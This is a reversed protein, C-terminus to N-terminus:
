TETQQNQQLELRLRVRLRRFSEPTLMDPLLLLQRPRGTFYLIVLWPMVFARPALLTQLQEGSAVQLVCDRGAEWRLGRVAQPHRRSILRRWYWALSFLVMGGLALRLLLPIPLLPLMLLAAGHTLLLWALMRRSPGIELQLPTAYQGSM